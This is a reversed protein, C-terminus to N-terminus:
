RALTGVARLTVDVHKDVRLVLKSPDKMGWEVYPLRFTGTAILRNGELDLTVPIEVPHKKGRLELTGTLTGRSTGVTPISGEFRGANFVALPHNGSQLVKAHMDKDRGDNGTDGSRVDVVVRGSAEGGTPPFTISGERVAFSGEVDHLTAGLTFTVKSAKPDLTLSAGQLAVAPLCLLLLLALYRRPNSSMMPKM